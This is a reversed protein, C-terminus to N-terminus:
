TLITECEWHYEIGFHDVIWSLESFLETFDKVYHFTSCGCYTMLSTKEKSIQLIHVPKKMAYMYGNEWNTGASSIRGFSIMIAGDCENMAKVDADFVKQAWEEQPMDWANEIKLKWPCYVDINREILFEAIKNMLTRNESNCPGAIYIKM